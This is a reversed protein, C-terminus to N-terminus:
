FVTRNGFPMSGNTWIFVTIRKAYKWSSPRHMSFTAETIVPFKISKFEASEFGIEKAVFQSAGFLYSKDLFFPQLQENSGERVRLKRVGERGPFASAIPFELPWGGSPSVLALQAYPKEYHDTAYDFWSRYGTDGIPVKEGKAVKVAGVTRSGTVLDVLYTHEGLVLFPDGMLPSAQGETESLYFLGGPPIQAQGKSVESERVVIAESLHKEQGSHNKYSKNKLGKLHPIFVMDEAPPLGHPSEASRVWGPFAIWCTLILTFIFLRVMKFMVGPREDENRM